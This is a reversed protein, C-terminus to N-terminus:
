ILNNIKPVISILKDVALETITVLQVGRSTFRKHIFFVMQFKVSNNLDRYIKNFLYNM